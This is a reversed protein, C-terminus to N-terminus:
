RVPRYFKLKGRTVNALALETESVKRGATGANQHAITFVGPAHVATVIATHTSYRERHIANPTRVEVQV